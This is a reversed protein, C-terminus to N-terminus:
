RDATTDASPPPASPARDGAISTEAIDDDDPMDAARSLQRLRIVYYSWVGTLAVYTALLAFARSPAGRGIAFLFAVTAGAAVFLNMRTIVRHAAMGFHRVRWSATGVVILGAGFIRPVVAGASGGLLWQPAVLLPVAAAWCGLAHGMLWLRLSAPVDM